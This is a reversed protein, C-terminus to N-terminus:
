KAARAGREARMAHKEEELFEALQDETMGSKAFAEAVPGSIERISRPPSAIMELHRAAYTAVDVGAAAAKAKLRAGAAPSISISLV